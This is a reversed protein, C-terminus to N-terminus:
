EAPFHEELFTRALRQVCINEPGHFPNQYPDMSLIMGMLARAESKKGVHYLVEAKAFHTYLYTPYAIVALELGMAVTDITYGALGLGKEALWGGKEIITATSILPGCYFYTTNENATFVLHDMITNLYRAKVLINANEISRALNLQRWYHAPVFHPDIDLAKTGYDNGKKFCPLATDDDGVSIYYYGLYYNGRAAWTQALLNEPRDGAIKEFVAVAQKGKEIDERLDWDALADRFEPLDLEPLARGVPAPLKEEWTAAYTKQIYDLDAYSSVATILLKMATMDAGDLSVAKAAYSEAQKLSGTRDKKQHRAKLYYSRSLWLNVALSDPHAAELRHLVAILDDINKGDWHDAWLVAVEQWLPDNGPLPLNMEWAGQSSFVGTAIFGVLLCAYMGSKILNRIM